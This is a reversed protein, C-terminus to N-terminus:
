ACAVDGTMEAGAERDGATVIRGGLASRDAARGVVPTPRAVAAIPPVVERRRRSRAVTRASTLGGGMATGPARSRRRWHEVAIVNALTPVGASAASGGRTRAAILRRSTLGAAHTRALARHRKARGSRLDLTHRAVPVPLRAVVDVVVAIPHDVVAQRAIGVF